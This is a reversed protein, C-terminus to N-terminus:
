SSYVLRSFFWNWHKSLQIWAQFQFTFNWWFVVVVIFSVVANFVYHFHYRGLVPLNMQSTTNHKEKQRNTAVVNGFTTFVLLHAQSALDSPRPSVHGRWAGCLYVDTLPQDCSTYDFIWDKLVKEQLKDPSPCYPMVHGWLVHKGKIGSIFPAIASLMLLRVFLCLLFNLEGSFFGLFNTVSAVFLCPCQLILRCSNMLLTTLFAIFKQHM